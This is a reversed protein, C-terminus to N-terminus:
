SNDGLAKCMQLLWHLLLLYKVINKNKNAIQWEQNNIAFRFLFFSNTIQKYLKNLLASLYM